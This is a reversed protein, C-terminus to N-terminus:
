EAAQGPALMGGYRIIDAVVDMMVAQVRAFGAHPQLTTQDMYLARSIELQVAQVGRRPRGYHRTVYGGAFPVNRAVSYGHRTLVQEMVTALQPTCATGWATGLVFDPQDRRGAVVPMSHADLVICCGHHEVRDRVLRALADHYPQWCTRIRAEAESFPLPRPYIPGDRSVIRAITGFGAQVKRSTTNCWHPLPDRFMTPDLEWPERNADCYARPFTAHLLTAGQGPAGEFLQEVYCDESRRLAHAGLRSMRLFADTYNRGSHASAVVLPAQKGTAEIISYPPIASDAMHRPRNWCARVTPCAGQMTPTM